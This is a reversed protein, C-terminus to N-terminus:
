DGEESWAGVMNIVTWYTGDFVLEVYAGVTTQSIYNGADTTSGFLHFQEAAPPDIRIGNADTVLFGVRYGAVGTPLTFTVVSSAGTNSFIVNNKLESAQVTYDGTKATVAHGVSSIGGSTLQVDNGDEDLYHLEAKSNVDKAHLIGADAVEKDTETWDNRLTVKRHQGADTDSVETGTLPWYHDGEDSSGNHDNMREQVAAKVERIKDDITSPADSGVPTATDYDNTLAM